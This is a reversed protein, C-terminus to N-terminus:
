EPRMDVNVLSISVAERQHARFAKVLFMNSFSSKLPFIMQVNILLAPQPSELIPFLKMCLKVRLRRRPTLIRLLDVAKQSILLSTEESEQEHLNSLSHIYSWQLM